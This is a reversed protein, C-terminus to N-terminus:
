SKPLLSSTTDVDPLMVHAVLTPALQRSSRLHMCLNNACRWVLAFCDTCLACRPPTILCSHKPHACHVCSRSVRMIETTRLSIQMGWAKTVLLSWPIFLRQTGHSTAASKGRPVDGLWIWPIAADIQGSEQLNPPPSKLDITIM